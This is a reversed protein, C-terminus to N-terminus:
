RIEYTLTIDVTVDQSGPEIAPAPVTEAGGLGLPAAAGVSRMAYTDYYRNTYVSILRGVSFHGAQAIQQAQAEAKQIAQARAEAEVQTPDDITFSLSSVSNAGNKVVGSMVDGITSFDRIKVDVTQSVTYGVIDAPPCPTGSTGQTPCSYTQYRPTITYGSTQIDKDAVGKGKVFAIAANADKTNETQLAGLNTGGQTVVSFSMKAVDPVATVKGETTVSFSRYAGPQISRSYTGAFSVVGYAAAILVAVITLGLLNKIRQNM